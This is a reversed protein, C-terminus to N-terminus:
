ILVLKIREFINISNEYYTGVKPKIGVPAWDFIRGFVVCVYLFEVM